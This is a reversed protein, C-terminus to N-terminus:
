LAAGLQALFRSVWELEARAVALSRDFIADVFPPLPQQSSWRAEVHAIQRALEARYQQLAAIAEGHALSPLNALGLLLPAHCPRPVSLADLASAHLAARGEPTLQYIKRALGREAAEVQGVILQERDLKKLIYYISSFGIETWERMGRAEIAQEIDYGHRPQEALLTLIALEASTLLQM